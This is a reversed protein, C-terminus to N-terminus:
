YGYQKHCEACYHHGIEDKEEWLKPETIVIKNPTIEFCSCGGCEHFFLLRLRKLLHSEKEILVKQIDKPLEEWKGYTKAEGKSAICGTATGDDRRFFHVWGQWKEIFWIPYDICIDETVFTSRFGM